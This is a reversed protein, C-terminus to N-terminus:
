LLATCQRAGKRVSHNASRELRVCHSPSGSEWSERHTEHTTDGSRRLRTERRAAFRVRHCWRSGHRSRLRLIHGTSISEGNWRLALAQVRGSRISHPGRPLGSTTRALSPEEGQDVHISPRQAGTHLDALAAERVARPARLLDPDTTNHSARTPRASPLDKHHHEVVYAERRVRISGLTAVPPPQDTTQEEQDRRHSAFSSTGLVGLGALAVILLPAAKWHM